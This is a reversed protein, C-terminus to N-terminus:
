PRGSSPDSEIASPATSAYRIRREAAPRQVQHLIAAATARLAPPALAMWLQWTLSYIGSGAAWTAPSSSMPGPARRYAGQGGNEHPVYGAAGFWNASGVRVAHVGMRRAVYALAGELKDSRLTWAYGVNGRKCTGPHFGYM